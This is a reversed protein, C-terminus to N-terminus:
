RRGRGVGRRLGARDGEIRRHDAGEARAFGSGDRGGSELEWATMALAAFCDRHRSFSAYKGIRHRDPPRVPSPPTRWNQWLIAMPVAVFGSLPIAASPRSIASARRATTYVPAPILVSDPIGSKRLGPPMQVCIAGM